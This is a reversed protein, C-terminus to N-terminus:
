GRETGQAPVWGRGQAPVAAGVDDPEDEPAEDGVAGLTQALGGM